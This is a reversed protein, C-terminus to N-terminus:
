KRLDGTSVVDTTQAVSWIWDLGDQLHTWKKQTTSKWPYPTDTHIIVGNWAGPTVSPPRYKRDEARNGRSSMRSKLQSCAHKTHEDGDEDRGTPHIDDVFTAQRTALKGDKRIKLFRGLFSDYGESCPLNLHVRHWQWATLLAHRNGMCAELM